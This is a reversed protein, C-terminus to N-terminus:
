EWRFTGAAVLPAGVAWLALVLWNRVGVGDGLTLARHLGDALAASPLARAMDAMWAPLKSLPALMGSTLLLLIYLGNAVALNLEARLLGALLLGVGGFGISGLLVVAVAQGVRDGSPRWGIAVAVPVLVAVQLAEVMVVTAIKAGLLAPRGLPTAGLRKLVGYSREFGTAIALNVMTTGMIALALVGPALFAVPKGPGTPLWRVESFFVLLAVPIGITLLLSEGRRLTMGMEAAAQARFRRVTHRSRRLRIRRHRRPQRHRRRTPTTPITPTTPTACSRSYVAELGGGDTRLNSLQIDNAALWATVSAVLAEGHGARRRLVLGIGRRAGGLRAPRPRRGPGVLDVAAPTAFRLGAAGAQKSFDAVAGAAVQRGRDIIM